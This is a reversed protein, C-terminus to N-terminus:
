STVFLITDSTTGNRDSSHTIEVTCTENANIVRICSTENVRANTGIKMVVDTVTIAEDTDNRFTFRQTSLDVMVGEEEGISNGTPVPEEALIMTLLPADLESPLASCAIKELALKESLSAGPYRACLGFQGSSQVYIWTLREPMVAFPFTLIPEISQKWNTELPLADNAVRFAQIALSLRLHEASISQAQRVERYKDNNIYSSGAQLLSAFTAIVIVSM